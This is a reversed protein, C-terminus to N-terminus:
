LTLRYDFFEFVYGSAPIAKITVSGNVVDGVYVNNEAWAGKSIVVGSFDKVKYNFMIQDCSANGKKDYIKKANFNMIIRSDKQSIKINTVECKTNKNGYFDYESVFSKPYEIKLMVDENTEKITQNSNPNEEEKQLVFVITSAIESGGVSVSKVFWGNAIWDANVTKELDVRSDGDWVNGILVYEKM